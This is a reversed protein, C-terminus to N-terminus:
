QNGYIGLLDANNKEESGSTSSKLVTRKNVKGDPSWLLEYETEKEAQDNSINAGYQGFFYKDITLKFTDNLLDLMFSPQEASLVPGMYPCTNVEILWVRYDEDLIFDFGILEFKHGLRKRPDLLNLAAAHCDIMLDKMRQM